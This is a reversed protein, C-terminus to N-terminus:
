AEARNVTREKREGEGRHHEPGPPRGAQRANEDPNRARRFCVPLADGSRDGDGQLDCIPEARLCGGGASDSREVQDSAPGNSSMIVVRTAKDLGVYRYRTARGVSGVTVISLVGESVLFFLWRSATGHDVGLLRGATRCALFFPYEGADAQLERCLAALLRIGSHHHEQLEPPTIAAMAREFIMDIPGSGVPFRVKPWAKLFDIWTEEFPKTRIVPYALAHWERLLPKLQRPDADCLEPLGKLRRALEFVCRCRQGVRKPQTGRLIRELKDRAVSIVSSSLLCPAPTPPHEGRQRRQTRQQATSESDNSLSDSVHSLSEPLLGAEVPDLARLRAVTLPRIWKYEGGDPHASPPLLVYHRSDGRYEGDGFDRFLAPGLFYVHYGRRTKVTPLTSALEPHASTWKQYSEETDFDRVVLGGSVPGCLVAIGTIGSASFWRRIIRESARRTQYRKWKGIPEKGNMPLISWGRAAYALAHELLTM